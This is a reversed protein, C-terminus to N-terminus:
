LGGVFIFAVERLTLRRSQFILELLFDLADM